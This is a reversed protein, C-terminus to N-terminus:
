QNLTGLLMLFPLSGEFKVKGTMMAMQPNMKGTQMLTYDSVKVILTVQPTDIGNFTTASNFLNGDDRALRLKFVGKFNKLKDLHKKTNYKLIPNDVLVKGTAADRWDQEAITNSIHSNELGGPVIEIETGNKIRVGYVLGDVDYTVRYEEGELGTPPNEKIYEAFILPLKQEFFEQVTIDEGIQVESM